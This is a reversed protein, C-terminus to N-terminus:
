RLAAYAPSDVPLKVKALSTQGLIGALLNNFDHAVGGALLGLSELKQARHLAEETHKRETMDRM